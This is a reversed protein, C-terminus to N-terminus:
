CHADIRVRWRLLFGVDRGPIHMTDETVVM